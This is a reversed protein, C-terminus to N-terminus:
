GRGTPLVLRTSTPAVVEVEKSSSSSSSSSSSITTGTAGKWGDARYEQQDHVVVDGVVVIAM